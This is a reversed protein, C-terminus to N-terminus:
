PSSVSFGLFRLPPYPPKPANLSETESFGLVWSSRLLPGPQKPAKGQGLLGQMGQLRCGECGSVRGLGEGHLGWVRTRHTVCHANANYLRIHSFHSGMCVQQRERRAASGPRPLTPEGTAGPGASRAHGGRSCTPPPACPDGMIPTYIGPLAAPPPAPAIPRM